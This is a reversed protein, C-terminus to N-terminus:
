RFRAVSYASPSYEQRYRTLEPPSPYDQKLMKIVIPLGDDRIGRYVLSNASEYIKDGITIGPLSVM